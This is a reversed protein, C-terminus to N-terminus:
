AETVEMFAQYENVVLRIIGVTMTGTGYNAVDGPKLFLNVDCRVVMKGNHQRNKYSIGSLTREAPAANTTTKYGTLEISGSRDGEYQAASEFNATAIIETNYTGDTLRYGKRVQIEGNPRAAIQDPIENQFPIVCSLYSPTRNRLTAQFSSLPLVADDLTPSENAGTLTCTYIIQAKPYQEPRLSWSYAPAHATFRMEAAGESIYSVAHVDSVIVTSNWYAAYTANWEVEFRFVVTGPGVPAVFKEWEPLFVHKPEATFYPYVTGLVNFNVGDFTGYRIATVPPTYNHEEENYLKMAFKIVGASDMDFTVDFTSSYNVQLDPYVGTIFVPYSQYCEYDSNEVYWRTTIHLDSSQSGTLIHENNVQRGQIFRAQANHAHAQFDIESVPPRMIRCPRCNLDNFVGFDISATDPTYVNRSFPFAQFDIHPIDRRDPLTKDSIWAQNTPETGSPPDPWDSPYSTFLMELWLVFIYLKKGTPWHTIPLEVDRWDQWGPVTVYGSTSDLYSGDGDSDEGTEDLIAIALAGGYNYPGVTRWAGATTKATLHATYPATQPPLEHFMGYYTWDATNGPFPVFADARLSPSENHYVASDEVWDLCPGPLPRVFGSPLADELLWSLPVIQGIPVAAAPTAAFGSFGISGLPIECIIAM